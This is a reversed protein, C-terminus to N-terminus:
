GKMRIKHPSTKPIREIIGRAELDLKVSVVYWPVSGDFSDKLQEVALDNVESYTIEGHEQVTKVIFDKIPDYRKKLINVGKNGQPHLTQIREETTAM